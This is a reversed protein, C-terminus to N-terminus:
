RRASKKQSKTWVTGGITTLYIIMQYKTFREVSSAERVINSLHKQAM